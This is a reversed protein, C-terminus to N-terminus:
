QKVPQLLHLPFKRTAKRSPKEMMISHKQQMWVAISDMWRNAAGFTPHVRDSGRNLSLNRSDFYRDKGVCQQVMDNFGTDGRWSPVGIWIFPKSNMINVIKRIYVDNEQPNKLFQENGGICAMFFTPQYKHIYHQLTDSSAWQKTTSNYWIVRALEYGNEQAYDAMRRTLGEAMSDGFFLIRQITTDSSAEKTEERPTSISDSVDHVIEGGQSPITPIRLSLKSLSWGPPPLQIPCLAYAVVFILPLALIAIVKAYLKMSVKTAKGL